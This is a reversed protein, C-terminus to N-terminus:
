LELRYFRAANRSFLGEREARSFGETMRSVGEVITGFDARLACVPLNSAFMCREIGFIEIAELVVRRDSEYEWPQDKLGFESIKLWV